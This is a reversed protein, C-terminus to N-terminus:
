EIDTKTRFIVDSLESFILGALIFAGGILAVSSLREQGVLVAFAAADAAGDFFDCGNADAYHVTSIKGACVFRCYDATDGLIM